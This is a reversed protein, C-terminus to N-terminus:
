GESRGDDGCHNTDSSLLDKADFEIENSERGHESRNCGRHKRV